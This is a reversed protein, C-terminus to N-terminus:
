VVTGVVWGVESFRVWGVCVAAGIVLWM